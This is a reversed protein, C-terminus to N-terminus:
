ELDVVVSSLSMTSCPSWPLLYSLCLMTNFLESSLDRASQGQVTCIHTHIKRASPFTRDEVIDEGEIGPEEVHILAHHELTGEFRAVVCAGGEGIQYALFNADGNSRALM